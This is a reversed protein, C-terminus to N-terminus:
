LAQVTSSIRVFYGSRSDILSRPETNWDGHFFFNKRRSPCSRLRSSTSCPRIRAGPTKSSGRMWTPTTQAEIPQGISRGSAKVGSFSSAWSSSPM